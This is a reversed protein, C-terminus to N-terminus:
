AKKKPLKPEFGLQSQAGALDVNNHVEAIKGDVVRITDSGTIEGEKGTPEHGDFHGTHKFRASWRTVVTDGDVRLDEVKLKLEPTASRYTAIMAKFGDIGTIPTDSIPSHLVFSESLVEGIAKADGELAKDYYKRVITEPSHTPVAAEKESTSGRRRTYRGRLRRRRGPV